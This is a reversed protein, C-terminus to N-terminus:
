QRMEFRCSWSGMLSMESGLRQLSSFIGDNALVPHHTKKKTEEMSYKTGACSFLNLYGIINQVMKAM